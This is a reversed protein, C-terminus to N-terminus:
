LYKIQLNSKLTRVNEVILKEYALVHSTNLNTKINSDICDLLLSFSGNLFPRSGIPGHAYRPTTEQNHISEPPSLCTHASAFGTGTCSLFGGLRM